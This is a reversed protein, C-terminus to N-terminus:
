LFLTLAIAKLALFKAAMCVETLLLLVSLLSCFPSQRPLQSPHFDLPLIFTGLMVVIEFLLAVSGLGNQTKNVEPALCMCLSVTSFHLSCLATEPRFCEFMCKRHFVSAAPPQHLTGKGPWLLTIM